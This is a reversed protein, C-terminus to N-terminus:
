DGGLEQGHTKVRVRGPGKGPFVRVEAITLQVAQRQGLLSLDNWREAINVTVASHLHGLRHAEERARDRETRLAALKERAAPEEGLGEFTRIAADLNAQAAEAAAAAEVARREGSARGTVDALEHKVAEVVVGEVIEASITQRRPCDGVPPCRYFAYRKHPRVQHGVIMRAGCIGCRLVGLRALLRDSKPRTGRTERISQVRDWIDRDVIAEHAEANVLKGFHIEGLYVRSCLLHQIGHFSREVGQERLFARVEGITAGDARQVFASRVIDAQDSPKLIGDVDRVYGPPILPWPAVGRAVARAQAEGSRERAQRRQYEAMMGLMTGHVWEGASKTSIAGADLALLGGGAAEVRSVLEAQVSLSRVLRDFYAAVIVEARGAEIAEVAGRLGARKSLPAGGSVDLEEITDILELSDRKCADEIRSRQETPSVFREGERGGVQSVRVIGVARRM